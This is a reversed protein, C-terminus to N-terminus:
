TPATYATIQGDSNWTLSGNAGGATLKALTASGAVVVNKAAYSGNHNHGADAYVGSHNHNGAALDPAGTGINLGLLYSGNWSAVQGASMSGATVDNLASLDIQGTTIKKSADIRLPRSATRADLTVDGAVTVNGSADAKFKSVGGATQVEVNGTDSKVLLPQTVATLTTINGNADIEFKLVGSKKLRFFPSTDDLLLSKGSLAGGAILAWGTDARWEWVGCQGSGADTQFYLSPGYQTEAPTGPGALIHMNTGQIKLRGNVRVDGTMLAEIPVYLNASNDVTHVQLTRGGGSSRVWRLKAQGYTQGGIQTDAFDVYNGDSAGEAAIRWVSGNADRMYQSVRSATPDAQFTSIGSVTDKVAIDADLITVDGTTKDVLIRPTSGTGIYLDHASYTGLYGDSDNSQLGTSVNNTSDIARINPSASGKVQLQPRIIAGEGYFGVDILANNGGDTVLFEPAYIYCRATNAGMVVNPTNGLPDYVSDFHFRCQECYNAALKRPTTGISAMPRNKDDVCVFRVPATVTGIVDVAKNYNEMTCGSLHVWTPPSGGTAKIRFHTDYNVTSIGYFNVGMPGTGGTPEHVLIAAYANGAQGTSAMVKGGTFTVENSAEIVVADATVTAPAQDYGQYSYFNEFTIGEGIQASTVTSKRIHLATGLHSQVAVNRWPRCNSVSRLEIVPSITPNNLCYIFCDEISVGRIYTFSTGLATNVDAPDARFVPGAVHNAGVYFVTQWGGIQGPGSGFGAGRLTVGPRTFTITASDLLYKGPPVYLVHGGRGAPDNGAGGWPMADIAAQIAATDDTVGDGVAGFDLVSPVEGLKENIARPVSGTYNPM